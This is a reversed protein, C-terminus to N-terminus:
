QVEAAVTKLATVNSVLENYAADFDGRGAGARWLKLLVGTKQGASGVKQSYREIQRWQPDNIQRAARFQVLIRMTSEYVDGAIVYAKSADDVTVLQAADTVLESVSTSKCGPLLLFLLLFLVSCRRIM